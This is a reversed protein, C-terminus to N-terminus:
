FNSLKLIGNDYEIRFFSATNIFGVLLQKFLQEAKKKTLSSLDPIRPTEKPM